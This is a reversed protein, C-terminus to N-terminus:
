SDEEEGTLVRSVADATDKCQTGIEAVRPSMRYSPGSVSIAAIPAGLVDVIAAAVCTVEHQNEEDDVAYGREASETLLELLAATGIVTRETRRTLELESLRQRREPAALASLMARGLATSHVPERHGVRSVLRVSRTAEVKDIYTVRDGEVVGLHVTEDVDDRLGLLHPHAVARLDLQESYSQSLRLVKSSVRYRRDGPDQRIYGAERLTALLRSTTGKDLGTARALETVGGGRPDDAILELLSLGRLLTRASPPRATSMQEGEGESMPESREGNRETPQERERSIGKVM